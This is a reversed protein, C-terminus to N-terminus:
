VAYGLKEMLMYMHDPMMKYVNDTFYTKWEDKKGQRVFAIDSRSNEWKKLPKAKEIKKMMDFSSNQIATAIMEESFDLKLRAVAKKVSDQPADLVDEYRLLCFNKDNERAGLWSGVNECWTGFNGIGTQVFQEFFDGFPMTDPIRFYKKQYFYYSVSVSRPDRVLYIIKKLRPDFSRHACFFGNNSKKAIEKDANSNLGPVVYRISRFNVETENLLNAFIFRLWTNGSKPYSVIYCNNSKYNFDIPKSFFSRLNM